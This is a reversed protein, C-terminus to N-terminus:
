DGASIQRIELSGFVVSAFIYLHPRNEDFAPTRYLYTGLVATDGQPTTAAGMAATVKVKVPIAPNIYLVTRGFVTNIEKMKTGQEPDFETLHIEGKGFIVNYDEDSAGSDSQFKTNSFVTTQETTQETPKKNTIGLLVKVGFYILLLAFMTRFVPIELNFWYKVILMLGILILFVGWFMGGFEINMKTKM